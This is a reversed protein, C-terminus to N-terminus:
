QVYKWLVSGYPARGGARTAFFLTNGTAVLERPGSGEGFPLHSTVRWTGAPTGDSCWLQSRAETDNAGFCVVGGVSTLDQPSGWYTATAFTAVVGTGARTGDSRWLAHGGPPSDYYPGVAFYLEGSVNTLERAGDPIRRVLQTGAASGDSRWLDGAVTFYLAKGVRTLQHPSSGKPGPKIDKVRRTGRDTGDTVWLEWGTQRDRARFFLKDGVATLEGPLSGKACSAGKVGCATGGHRASWGVAHKVLQTGAATGDSRWLGGKKMRGTYGAIYLSGGAKALDTAQISAVLPETGGATGDSRYIRWGTGAYAMFYLGGRFGILRRPVIDKVLGTTEPSGKTGWLGTGTDAGYAAFLVQDGVKVYATEDPTGVASVRGHRADTLRVTGGPTGDSM